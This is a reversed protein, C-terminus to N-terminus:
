EKFFIPFFKVTMGAGVASVLNQLFLCIPIHSRTICGLSKPEEASTGPEMAAQSLTTEEVEGEIHLITESEKGLSKDDDFFFALVICPVTAASGIYIVLKEEEMTWNNKTLYFSLLAVCPGVISALNWIISYYMEMDSRYGAEVSDDLLAMMPGGVIGNTVGGISLAVCLLTFCKMSNMEANHTAYVQVAIFVLWLCGGLWLMYKRKYKSLLLSFTLSAVLSLPQPM